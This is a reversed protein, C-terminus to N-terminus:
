KMDSVCRIYRDYNASANSTSGDKFSVGWFEDDSRVYSTSTWYLTDNDINSFEKLIAPKYRKYDVISLLETLTPIRWNKVEGLELESCYTLAQSYNVKTEKTHETDEWLLKTKDDKVITNQANLTSIVSLIVLLKKM